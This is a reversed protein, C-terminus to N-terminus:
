TQGEALQGEAPMFAENVLVTPQWTHQLREHWKTDLALERAMRSGPHVSRLRRPKPPQLVRVVRDLRDCRVDFSVVMDNVLLNRAALADRDCDLASRWASRRRIALGRQSGRSSRVRRLEAQCFRAAANFGALGPV